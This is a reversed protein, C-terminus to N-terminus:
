VSSKNRLRVTTRFTRYITSPTAAINNGYCDTYVTGSDNGSAQISKTLVCVDVALVTPWQATTISTATYGSQAVDPDATSPLQYLFAIQEVGPILPQVQFTPSAAALPTRDSLCSLQGMSVTGDPTQVTTPAVFFYSRVINSVGGQPISSLGLCDFGQYVAGSSSYADTEFFTAISEPRMAGAPTSTQCAIDAATTATTPSVMGFSCGFIKNDLPAQPRQSAPNIVVFGATKIYQSLLNLAFRGNEEMQTTESSSNYNQKSYLYIASAAVALILGIVMAVMLEVLTVGRESRSSKVYSNVQM